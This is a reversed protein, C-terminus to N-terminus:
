KKIIKIETETDISEAIISNTSKYEKGDKNCKVYNYYLIGPNYELYGISTVKRYGCDRSYRNSYWIDGISLKPKHNKDWM